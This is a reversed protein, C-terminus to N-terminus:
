AVPPGLHTNTPAPLPSAASLPGHQRRRSAKGSSGRGGPATPGEANQRVSGRPSASVAPPVGRQLCQVHMDRDFALGGLARRGWAWRAHGACLLHKTFTPRILLHFSQSFLALFHTPPSLTNELRLSLSSYPYSARGRLRSPALPAGRPVATELAPAPRATLGRAGGLGGAPLCHQPRPERAPDLVCSLQTHSDASARPAGGPSWWGEAATPGTVASKGTLEEQAETKGDAIHPHHSLGGGPTTTLVLHTLIITFRKPLTFEAHTTAPIIAAAAMATVVRPSSAVGPGWTRVAIRPSSFPVWCAGATRQQTKAARVEALQPNM